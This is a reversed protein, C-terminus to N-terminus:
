LTWPSVRDDGRSSPRCDDGRSTPRIQESANIKRQGHSKACQSLSFCLSLSFSLFSTYIVSVLASIFLYGSGCHLFFLSLSFFGFLLPLGNLVCSGTSVLRKM